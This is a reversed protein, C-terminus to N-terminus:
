LEGEGKGRERAREEATHEEKAETKIEQPESLQKNTQNKAKAGHNCNARNATKIVM